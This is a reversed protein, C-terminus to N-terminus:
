QILYVIQKTSNMFMYYITYWISIYLLPFVFRAIINGYSWIRERRHHKFLELSIVSIITIGCMLYGSLIIADLITLYSVNPFFSSVVFNFAVATLAFAAVISVRRDLSERQMWFVCTSLLIFFCFPFLIRWEYYATRRIMPVHFSAYSWDDSESEWLRRIGATSSMEHLIWEDNQFNHNVGTRDSWVKYDLEDKPYSFSEFEIRIIQRDFPFKRFELTTATDVVFVASYFIDGDPRILLRKNLVSIESLQNTIQPDPWWMKNKREEVEEGIYIAPKNDESEFAERTDKWHLSFAYRARLTQRPQDLNIIDLLFLGIYVTTPGEGNPPRKIQKQVQHAHSIGPFLILFAVFFVSVINFKGSANIRKEGSTASGRLTMAPPEINETRM